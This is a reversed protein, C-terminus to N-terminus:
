RNLSLDEHHSLLPRLPSSVPPSSLDDHCPMILASRTVVPSSIDDSPIHHSSVDNHHSSVDNHYFPRWTEKSSTEWWSSTRESFILHSRDCYDETACSTFKGTPKLSLESPDTSQTTMQSMSSITFHKEVKTSAAMQYQLSTEPM